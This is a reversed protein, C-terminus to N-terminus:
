YRRRANRKIARLRCASVTGVAAPRDVTDHEGERRLAVVRVGSCYVDPVRNDSRTAMGNLVQSAAIGQAQLSGIAHLGCPCGHRPRRM